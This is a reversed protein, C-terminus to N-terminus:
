PAAFALSAALTPKCAQTQSHRSSNGSCPQPVVPQAEQQSGNVASLSHWFGFDRTYSKSMCCFKQDRAIFSWGTKLRPRLIAVHSLIRDLNPTDSLASLALDCRLGSTLSFIAVHLLLREGLSPLVSRNTLSDSSRAQSPTHRSDATEPQLRNAKKYRQRASAM